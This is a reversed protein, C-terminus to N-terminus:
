GLWRPAVRGGVGSVGVEGVHVALREGAVASSIAAAPACWVSNM